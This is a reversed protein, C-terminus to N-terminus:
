ASFMLIGARDAFIIVRPQTRTLTYNCNNEKCKKVNRRCVEM